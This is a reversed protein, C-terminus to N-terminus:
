LKQIALGPWYFPSAVPNLIAPMGLDPIQTNASRITTLAAKALAAVTPSAEQGYSPAVRCALNYVIAEAYEPPLQIPQELTIGQDLQAKFLVHLEWRDGTPVPWPRFEGIPWCPNYHCYNPWTNLRKLGIGAYDEYSDIIELPYDIPWQSGYGPDTGGTFAPLAVTEDVEARWPVGEPGEAQAESVGTVCDGPGPAPTVGGPFPQPDPPGAVQVATVAVIDDDLTDPAYPYLRAYAAEIKDPRRAVDLDGGPGITYVEKGTCPWAHDLLCPVVWRRRQWQALMMRLHAFASQVDPEGPATGMAGIGIQLLALTVLSRPTPSGDAYPDPTLPVPTEM